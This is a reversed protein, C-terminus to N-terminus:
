QLYIGEELIQDRPLLNQITNRRKKMPIHDQLDQHPHPGQPPAQLPNKLIHLLLEQDVIPALHLLLGGLNRIDKEQDVEGEEIRIIQNEKIEKIKNSLNKFPILPNIEKAIISYDQNMITTCQIIKSYSPFNEEQVKSNLM